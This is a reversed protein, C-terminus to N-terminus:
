FGIEGKQDATRDRMLRVQEVALLLGQEDLQIQVPRVAPDIQALASVKARKVIEKMMAPTVGRTAELLREWGEIRLEVKGAFREILRRRDDAGPLPVEIIQDVRGPRNKVASELRELSNTNMVFLVEESPDCGDIQNMLEGLVTALGNTDRQQAILDIDEFVIMTPQLYRAMRCLERPFLLREGSVFCITFRELQRALNLCISTKGTGPPGHLLVGRKKEIGLEDLLHSNEYFQIMSSRLLKSVEEPLVLSEEDVQQIARFGITRIGGADVVPDIVKGRYISDTRRRREIEKFFDDAIAKDQCAISVWIQMRPAHHGDISDFEYFDPSRAAMMIAIKEGGAGTVSQSLTCFWLVNTPFSADEGVDVPVREFTFAGPRVRKYNPLKLTEFLERLTSAPTAGVESSETCRDALYGDLARRVSAIDYGPFSKDHVELKSYRDGLWATLRQHLTRSRDSNRFAWYVLGFILTTMVLLASVSALALSAGNAFEFKLM